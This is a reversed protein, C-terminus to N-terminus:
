PLPGIRSIWPRKGALAGYLANAGLAALVAGVLSRLPDMVPFMVIAAAGSVLLLGGLLGALWREFRSM